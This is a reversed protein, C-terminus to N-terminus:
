KVNSDDVRYEIEVSFFTINYGSNNLSVWKNKYRLENSVFIISYKPKSNLKWCILDPALVPLVIGETPIITNTVRIFTLDRSTAGPRHRVIDWHLPRIGAAILLARQCFCRRFSSLEKKLNHGIVNPFRFLLYKRTNYKQLKVVNKQYIRRSYNTDNAWNLRTLHLRQLVVRM